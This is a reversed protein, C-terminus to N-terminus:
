CLTDMLRPIGSTGLLWARESLGTLGSRRSFLECDTRFGNPDKVVCLDRVADGKKLVRTWHEPL